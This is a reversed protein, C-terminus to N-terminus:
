KIKEAAQFIAVVEGDRQLLLMDGDVTYSDVSSLIEIFRQENESDACLARTLGGQGIELQKKGFTSYPMFYRNCAAQGVIQQEKDDFTLDYFDSNTDAFAKTGGLEYLKWQYETIHTHPNETAAGRCGCCSSLFLLSAVVALSFISKM